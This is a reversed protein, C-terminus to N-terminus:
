NKYSDFYKQMWIEFTVLQWIKVLDFDKEINNMWFEITANNFIKRTKLSEIHENIFNRFTADRKYWYLMPFSFGKKPMKMVQEPLYKEAVKRLLPKNQIGNFRIKEPCQAVFDILNNSLYPYRFEVGYKMASLDDRFVHHSSLSKGFDEKFYSLYDDGFSRKGNIVVNNEPLFLTNLEEKRMGSQGQRFFDEVTKLELQNKIKAIFKNKSNPLISALFSFKKIKKWRNLKLLHYYGGFLEDAGNGTLVVKYNESQAFKAANLLVEISCYPEEFHEINEKLHELIDSINVEVIQHKLGNEQAVIQANQLDADAEQYNVTFSELNENKEKAIISILTSDIGGSMMSIVPVDAKLQKLISEKLLNETTSIAEEESINNNIIEPFTWYQKKELTFNPIDFIMLHGPELSFVGEFCTEPTVSSQYMFNLKVGKWNINPAHIGSALISKIESAWIFNEEDFHYFLPKLGVRDRAFILQKKVVDAICFAFMGDLKKIFDLGFYEYAKLLVETDTNSVFQFGAAKLEERIEKFNYVEGNYTIVNGKESIMPQHGKESLDIISLRRFGLAFNGKQHQNLFKYRAKIADQSDEGSYSDFNNIEGFVYGEDDKGRHKIAKNMELIVDSSCKNKSIFGCIGCM